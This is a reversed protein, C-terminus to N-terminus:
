SSFFILDRRQIEEPSIHFPPFRIIFLSLFFLIPIFFQIAYIAAVRGFM